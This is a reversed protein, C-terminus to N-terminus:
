SQISMSFPRIIFYRWFLYHSRFTFSCLFIPLDCFPRDSSTSSSKFIIFFVQCVRVMSLFSYHFIKKPTLTVHSELAQTTPTSCFCLGSVDVLSIMNLVCHEQQVYKTKTCQRLYWFNSDDEAIYYFHYKSRKKPNVHSVITACLLLLASEGVTKTM